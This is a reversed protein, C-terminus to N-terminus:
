EEDEMVKLGCEEARIDVLEGMYEMLLIQADYPILNYETAYRCEKVLEDIIAGEEKWNKM